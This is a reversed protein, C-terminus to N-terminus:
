DARLSETPNLSAARRAPILSATTAVVLLGISVLAFTLPDAPRVGYILNVMWRTLWFAAALGLVVGALALGLGQGVVLRFVDRPEAGLAM